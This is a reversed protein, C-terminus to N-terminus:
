AEPSAGAKAQAPASPDAVPKVSKGTSRDFQLLPSPALGTGGIVRWSRDNFTIM